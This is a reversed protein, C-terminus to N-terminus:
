QFFFHAIPLVENSRQRGPALARWPRDARYRGHRDLMGCDVCNGAVDRLHFILHGREVVGSLAQGSGPRCSGTKPARMGTAHAAFDIDWVWRQGPPGADGLGRYISASLGRQASGYDYYKIERAASARKLVLPRYAGGSAAAPLPYLRSRSAEHQAPITRASIIEGLADVPDRACM